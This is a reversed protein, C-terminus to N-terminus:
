KNVIRITTNRDNRVLNFLVAADHPSLRVCGHSAPRGLHGVANTAHIAYGGSYFISHPMPANNYRKSHHMVELSTPHFTGTPTVHGSGATSVKFDFETFGSSVTMRQTSKNVLINIDAYSTSTLGLVLSAAIFFKKMM